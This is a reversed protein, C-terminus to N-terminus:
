KDASAKRYLKAAPSNSDCGNIISYKGTPNLYMPSKKKVSFRNVRLKLIIKFYLISFFLFNRM